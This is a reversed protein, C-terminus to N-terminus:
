RMRVVVKGRVGGREAKQQAAAIESLPFVSDIVPRIAGDDVLTALREFVPRHPSAVVLRVRRRGARVSTLVERTVAVSLMRGQRSLLCQFPQLGTGVTDLIVDFEGLEEPNVERYDFTEHAGLSRVLDLSDAGALAVVHAGMARGLQVAISGVGGSAGRVLLREGAQLQGRDQLAALATAGVCPLSAAEILDLGHPVASFDGPKAVIFEAASGPGAPVQGWVLDGVRVDAVKPGLEVVCGAYDKGVRKPFGRDVLASILKSKGQRLLLDISNVSVAEVEILVEGPGPTPKPAQQIRLVEPGGYENYIATRMTSAGPETTTM